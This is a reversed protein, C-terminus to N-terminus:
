PAAELEMRAVREAVGTLGDVGAEAQAEFAYTVFADGALLDLALERGGGPAATVRALLRHGLEVLHLPLPAPSPPADSVVAVLHAALAPPPVPRRQALWDLVDQRTM